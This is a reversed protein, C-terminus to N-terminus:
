WPVARKTGGKVESYHVMTRKDMEPWWWVPSATQADVYDLADKLTVPLGDDPSMTIPTSTAVLCKLWARMFKRNCELTVSDVGVQDVFDLNGTSPNVARFSRPKNTNHRILMPDRIDALVQGIALWSLREGEFVSRLSRPDHGKDSALIDLGAAVM